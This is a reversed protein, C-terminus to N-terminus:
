NSCNERCMFKNRKHQKNLESEMNVKMRTIKIDVLQM